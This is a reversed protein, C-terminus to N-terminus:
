KVLDENKTLLHIMANTEGIKPHKIMVDQVWAALFEKGIEPRQLYTTISDINKDTAMNSLCGMLAYKIDLENPIAAGNPNTVIQAPLSSLSKYVKYFAAFEIAFAEGVCGTWVELDTVGYNILRGLAAISRPCAFNKIDKEAPNFNSIFNQRFNLFSILEIPMGNNFAWKKWSAVDPQLEIITTFRSILAKILGNVGTADKRRNTCAIFSVKDSIKKGNIERALVLQMLSAQVASTSNGLDDIVVLTPKTASIMRELDGFPIFDAVRNAMDIGPMGKYDIPEATVPHSIVVEYNTIEGLKKSLDTKGIGPSSELLIPERNKILSPLINIAKEINM